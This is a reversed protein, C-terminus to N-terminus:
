YYKVKFYLNFNEFFFEYLKILNKKVYDVQDKINIRLYKNVTVCHVSMIMSLQTHSYPIISVQTHSISKM